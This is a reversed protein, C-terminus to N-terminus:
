VLIAVAGAQHGPGIRLVMVAIGNLPNVIRRKYFTVVDPLRGQGCDAAGRLTFRVSATAPYQEGIGFVPGYRKAHPQVTIDRQGSFNDTDGIREARTLLVPATYARGVAAM